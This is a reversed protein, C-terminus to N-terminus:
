TRNSTKTRLSAGNCDRHERNAELLWFFLRHIHFVIVIFIVIFIFICSMICNMTVPTFGSSAMELKAVQVRCSSSFGYRCRFTAFSNNM